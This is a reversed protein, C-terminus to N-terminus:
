TYLSSFGLMLIEPFFQLIRPCFNKGMKGMLQFRKEGIGVGGGGWPLAVLLLAWGPGWNGLDRNQRHPKKLAM